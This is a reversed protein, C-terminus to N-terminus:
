ELFVFPLILPFPLPPFSSPHPQYYSFLLTVNENGRLHSSFRNKQLSILYVQQPYSALHTTLSPILTIGWITLHAEEVLLCGKLSRDCGGLAWWGVLNRTIFFFCPPPPPFRQSGYDCTLISQPLTPYQHCGCRANIVDSIEDCVSVCVVCVCVWVCVCM